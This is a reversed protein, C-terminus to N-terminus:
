SNQTLNFTLKYQNQDMNHRKTTMIQKQGVDQRKGHNRNTPTLRKTNLLKTLTCKTHIIYFTFTIYFCLKTLQLLLYVSKKYSVYHTLTQLNKLQKSTKLDLLKKLKKNIVLPHCFPKM